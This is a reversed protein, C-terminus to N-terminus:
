IGYYLFIIQKHTHTQRHTQLSLDQSGSLPYPWSFEERSFFIDFINKRVKLM